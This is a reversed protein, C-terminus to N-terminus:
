YYGEFDVMGFMEAVEFDLEFDIGLDADMGVRQGIGVLLDPDLNGSYLVYTEVADGGVGDLVMDEVVVVWSDLDFIQLRNRRMLKIGNSTAHDQKFSLSNYCEFDLSRKQLPSSFSNAPIDSKQRENLRVTAHHPQTYYGDRLGLLEIKESLNQSQKLSAPTQLIINTNYNEDSFDESGKWKDSDKSPSRCHLFPKDSPFAGTNDQFGDTGCQLKQEDEEVMDAWTKKRESFEKNTALQQSSKQNQSDNKAADILEVNDATLSSYREECDANSFQKVSMRLSNVSMGSPLNCKDKCEDKVANQQDDSQLINREGEGNNTSKLPLESSILEVNDATLSSYSQECDANSFQKVSMKLSNVSMGSPLNCKDKCEDKIANQQDDSQLINREGEGNNISKLPLESSIAHVESEGNHISKLSLESSIKAHGEAMNKRWNESTSVNTGAIKTEKNASVSLFRAHDHISLFRSNECDKHQGFSLKRNFGGVEEEALWGRRQDGNFPWLCKRPQTFPDKPIGALSVPSTYEMLQGNSLQNENRRSGGNTGKAIGSGPFRTRSQCHSWCGAGSKLEHLPVMKNHLVYAQGKSKEAGPIDSQDANGDGSFGKLNRRAGSPFPTQVEGCFDEECAMPKVNKQIELEECAMPKVYAQGKSIEAGPIDSQDANGDGSFGKLNRRASTPFPTQVEGYFDEECAMPKFNKQIELEEIIQTAREFSRGYSEAMQENICSARVSELLFKAEATKNLHILCIALNCQKNKDPELSLAKRYSDEASKYDELQFHAWALNGLLRSYEKEITIQIKKGQSRALKTRKGDFAIGDEINKIKLQLIQIEEEIRGSRKYLEILVNDLSDQSELPCLHRFSKIAEIAEDSRNLQKMVVAMDKLASEVRDGANIAAWFLSVAKSPDKDIVQVHKAKVYPSDGAPVKHIVHFLDNKAQQGNGSSWPKRESRPMLPVCRNSGWKPPPTLFGRVKSIKGSNSM